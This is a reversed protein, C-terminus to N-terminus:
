VTHLIDNTAPIPETSPNDVVDLWFWWQGPPAITEDILLYVQAKGTTPYSIMSPEYWTTPPADKSVSVGARITATSLDEGHDDTLTAWAYDKRGGSVRINRM